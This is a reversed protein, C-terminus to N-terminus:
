KLIFVVAITVTKHPDTTPESRWVIRAIFILVPQHTVVADSHCFSLKHPQSYNLEIYLFIIVIHSYTHVTM